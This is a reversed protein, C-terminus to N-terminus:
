EGSSAFTWLDVVVALSENSRPQKNSL